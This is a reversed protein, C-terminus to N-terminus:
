VPSLYMKYLNITVPNSATDAFKTYSFNDHYTTSYYSQDAQFRFSATLNSDSGTVYSVVALYFQKDDTKYATDPPLFFRFITEEGTTGSITTPLDSTTILEIAYPAISGSSGGTTTQQSPPYSIPM